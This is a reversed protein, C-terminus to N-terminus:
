NVYWRIIKPSLMKEKSISTNTLGTRLEPLDRHIASLLGPARKLLKKTNFINYIEEDKMLGDAHIGAKTVNFNEGIFPTMPPIDYGMEKRFYEAIETIVTTDMGDLSSQAFSNM